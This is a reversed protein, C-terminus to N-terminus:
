VLLKWPLKILVAHQQKKEANSHFTMIQKLHGLFIQMVHHLNM